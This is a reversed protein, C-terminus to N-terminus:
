MDSESNQNLCELNTVLKCAVSSWSVKFYHNKEKHWHKQMVIETKNGTIKTTKSVTEIKKAGTM